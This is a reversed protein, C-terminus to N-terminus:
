FVPVVPHTQFTHCKWRCLDRGRHRSTRWTRLRARNTRALTWHCFLGTHINVHCIVIVARTLSSRARSNGSCSERSANVPKIHIPAQQHFGRLRQQIPDVSFVLKRDHVDVEIM